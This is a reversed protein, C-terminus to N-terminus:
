DATCIHLSVESRDSAGSFGCKFQALLAYLALLSCVAPQSDLSFQVCLEKVQLPSPASPAAPHVHTQPHPTTSWKYLRPYTDSLSTNGPRYPSETWAALISIMDCCCEYVVLFHVLLYPRQMDGIDKM